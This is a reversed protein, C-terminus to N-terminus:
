QIAYSVTKECWKYNDMIIKKNRVYIHWTVVLEGKYSKVLEIIKEIEQWLELDSHVKSGYRIGIDMIQCPHEILCMKRRQYIDFLYYPTCSGSRFGQIKHFVCNSIDLHDNTMSEWKRLTDYNYLLHHNRGVIPKDQLLEIIRAVEKDWQGREGFVNQSPHFGLLINSNNKKKLKDVVEKTFKDDFMYTAETEGRDCVKFYFWESINYRETLATYMEFQSYASPFARKYKIEERWTLNVVKNKPEGYRTQLYIDKAIKRWTPTLIGDVDHTLVVKYKFSKIKIRIPLLQRILESYENVVPRTHINSKVSFLQNEDCDGKEERGILFEEWRTLMFFTSAFVDLGIIIKDADQAFRDEGYIIPIELGLAHFFSLDTPINNVHLYSLPETFSNFFHDEVVVTRSDYQLVYDKTDDKFSIEYEEREVGMVDTLLAEIAYTREPINNSPCTIQIM